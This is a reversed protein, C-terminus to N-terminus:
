SKQPTTGMTMLASLAQLLSFVWVIEKTGLPEIHKAPWLVLVSSEEILWYKWIFEKVSDLQTERLYALVWSERSESHASKSNTQEPCKLKRIHEFVTMLKFNLWSFYNDSLYSKLVLINNQYITNKLCSVLGWHVHALYCLKLFFTSFVRFSRICFYFM